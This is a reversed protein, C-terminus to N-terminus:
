ELRIKGDLDAQIANVHVVLENIKDRLERRFSPDYFLDIPKSTYPLVSGGSGKDSHTDMDEDMKAGCSHCFPHTDPVDDGRVEEECESCEWVDYVPEGDAYGDYEIGIWHGHRVPAVDAAPIKDVGFQVDDADVTVRRDDSVPSTWVYKGTHGPRCHLEAKCGNCPHEASDYSRFHCLFKALEEDSMARIRDANTMWVASGCAKPKCKCM